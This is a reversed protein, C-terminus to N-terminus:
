FLVIQHRFDLHVCACYEHEQLLSPSPTYHVMLLEGEAIESIRSSKHVQVESHGYTPKSEEKDIANCYIYLRM